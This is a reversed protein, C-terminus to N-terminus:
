SRNCPDMRVTGHRRCISVNRVTAFSTMSTNQYHLIYLNDSLTRSNTCIGRALAFVEGYLHTPICLYYSKEIDSYPLLGRERIYPLTVANGADLADNCDIVYLIRQWAPDKAYRNPVRQQLQAINGGPQKRLNTSNVHLADLSPEDSEPQYEPNDLRSLARTM